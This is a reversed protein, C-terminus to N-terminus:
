EIDDHMRAALSLVVKIKQITRIRISDKDSSFRAAAIENAHQKILSQIEKICHIAREESEGIQALVQITELLDKQLSETDVVAGSLSVMQHHKILRDLLDDTQEQIPKRRKFM